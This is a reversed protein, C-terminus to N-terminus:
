KANKAAQKLLQRYRKIIDSKMVRLAVRLYPKGGPLRATGYEMYEAYEVNTGIKVENNGADTLENGLEAPSELGDGNAATKWNISARLLGTDFPALDKAQRTIAIGAEELFQEKSTGIYTDYNIHKKRQVSM